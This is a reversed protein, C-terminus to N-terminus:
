NPTIQAVADKGTKPNCKPHNQRETGISLVHLWRSCKSLRPSQGRTEGYPTQYTKEIQGKSTLKTDGLQIASGDTDLRKLLTGSAVAGAENLAQEIHREGDLMTTEFPISVELVLHDDHSSVIKVSM